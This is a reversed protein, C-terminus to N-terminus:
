NEETFQIQTKAPPTKYIDRDYVHDMSPPILNRADLWELAKEKIRERLWGGTHEQEFLAPFDAIHTSTDIQTLVAQRDEETLRQLMVHSTLETKLSELPLPTIEFIHGDKDGEKVSAHVGTDQLLEKEETDLLFRGAFSADGASCLAHIIDDVDFKHDYLHTHSFTSIDLNPDIDM